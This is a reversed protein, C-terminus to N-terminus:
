GFIDSFEVEDHQSSMLNEAVKLEKLINAQLSWIPDGAHVPVSNKDINTELVFVENFLKDYTSSIHDNSIECLIASRANLSNNQINRSLDMMLQKSLVTCHDRERVSKAINAVTQNDVIATYVQISAPDATEPHPNLNDNGGGDEALEIEATEEHVSQRNAFDIRADGDASAITGRRDVMSIHSRTESNCNRYFSDFTYLVTKWVCMANNVKEDLRRIESYDMFACDDCNMMEDCDKILEQKIHLQLNLMDQVFLEFYHHSNKLALYLLRKENIAKRDHIKTSLAESPHNTIHHPVVDNKSYCNSINSSLSLIISRLTFLWLIYNFSRFVANLTEMEVSASLNPECSRRKFTTTYLSSVMSPVMSKVVDLVKRLQDCTITDGKPLCCATTKDECKALVIRLHDYILKKIQNPALRFFSPVSGQRSCHLCFSSGSVISGLGNSHVFQIHKLTRDVHQCTSVVLQQVYVSGSIIGFSLVFPIGLRWVTFKLLSDMVNQRFKLVCLQLGLRCLQVATDQFTFLKFDVNRNVLVHGRFCEAWYLPFIMAGLTFILASWLLIDFIIGDVAFRLLKIVPHKQPSRLRQRFNISEFNSVKHSGDGCSELYQDLQSHSM